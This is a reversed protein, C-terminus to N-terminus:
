GELEEASIGVGCIERAQHTIHNFVAAKYAPIRLGGYSALSARLESLLVTKSAEKGARELISSIEKAITELGEFAEDPSPGAPEDAPSPRLKPSLMRKIESRFYLALIGTYYIALLLGIAALYDGWSLNNLM